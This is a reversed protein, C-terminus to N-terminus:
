RSRCPPTRWTSPTRCRSKPAASGHWRPTSNTSRGRWSRASIEAALSCTRWGEDVIVPRHTKAVSAIVTGHRAPAAVAPRGGRGRHGREGSRDGGGPVEVAVATPSWRHRGDGARRVAAHDIDVAAASTLEGEMPYLMAHEFIFVPDPDRLAALLMRLRRHGHGAGAGQHRSRPRVLGGPQPRAPGGAATRRRDGHAGGAARQVPWGVHLRITAANNVIQDLALLSFNITMIEVIPRMGAWRRASAPASSPRSASRHTACGSPGLEELLGQSVAFSGGYRGVDEGMLFVREDDRLAEGPAARIAERYTIM